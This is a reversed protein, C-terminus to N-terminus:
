ACIREGASKNPLTASVKINAENITEVAVIMRPPMGAAM